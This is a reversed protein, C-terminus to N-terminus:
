NFCIRDINTQLIRQEYIIEYAVPISDFNSLFDFIITAQADPPVIFGVWFRGSPWCDLNRLAKM